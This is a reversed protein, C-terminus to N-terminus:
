PAGGRAADVLWDWLYAAVPRDAFISFGPTADRCVLLVPLLAFRTLAATGPAFVRADLDIGTGKALLGRAAAGAVDFRVRADGIAHCAAHHGALGARLRDVLAAAASATGADALVADPATWFLDHPAGLVPHAPGAPLRVGLIAAAAARAALDDARLRLVVLGSAPAEALVVGPAEFRLRESM